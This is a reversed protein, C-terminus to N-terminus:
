LRLSRISAVQGGAIATDTGESITESPPKSEEQCRLPIDIDINTEIRNGNLWFQLHHPCKM